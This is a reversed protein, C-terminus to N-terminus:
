ENIRIRETYKLVGSVTLVGLKRQLSDNSLKYESRLKEGAECSNLGKMDVAFDEDLVRLVNDSKCISLDTPNMIWSKGTGFLLHKFSMLYRYAPNLKYKRINGQFYEYTTPLDLGFRSVYWETYLKRKGVWEYPLKLLTMFFDEDLYPSFFEFKDRSSFHFNLCTRIDQLGIFENFSGYEDVAKAVIQDIRNDSCLNKYFEKLLKEWGSKEGSPHRLDGMCEGGGIGTFVLGINSTDIRDILRRLGTTGQYHMQGENVSLLEDRDLLYNEKNINAAHFDCNYIDAIQSAIKLDNCGSIGYSFCFPVKGSFDKAYDVGALFSCRSDMGASLSFVPLYGAKANKEAAQRCSNRFLTDVYEVSETINGLSNKKTIYEANALEVKGGGIIMYQMHTLFHIQEYYTNDLTFVGNELMENVGFEDMELSIGLSKAEDVCDYFSTSVVIKVQESAYYIPKKSLLDNTIYLIDEQKDYIAIAYCGHLANMISAVGGNSFLDLILDYLSDKNSERLLDLSNYIIGECIVKFSDNEYVFNDDQFKVLKPNFNFKVINSSNLVIHM